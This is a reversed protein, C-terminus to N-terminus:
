PEVCHEIYQPWYGSAALLRIEHALADLRAAENHGPSDVAKKQVLAAAERFAGARIEDKDM